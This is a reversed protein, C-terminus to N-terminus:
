KEAIAQGSKSVGGAPRGRRRRHRGQSIVLRAAFETSGIVRARMLDRTSEDLRACQLAEAYQQREAPRLTALAMYPNADTLGDDRSLVYAAASSWRYSWASEALGARVANREVYWGCRALYEGVEVPPSKFRGQWFVGVSRHRAHHYQAYAQEIGAVFPRLNDFVVEIVMHYHNLMWAWHYIRAGCGQKYERVLRTFHQCDEDDFFIRSRNVGRNFVHYCISRQFIRAQRPM